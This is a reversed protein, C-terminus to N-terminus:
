SVSRSVAEQIANEDVVRVRGASPTNTINSIQTLLATALPGSRNPNRAIEQLLPLWQAGDLTESAQGGFSQHTRKGAFEIADPIELDDQTRSERGERAGSGGTPRDGRKIPVAQQAQELRQVDGQQLDSNKLGPTKPAELDHRKATRGVGPAQAQRGDPEVHAM